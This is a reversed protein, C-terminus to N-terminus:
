HVSTQFFLWRWRCWGTSWDSQFNPDRVVKFKRLFSFTRRMHPHHDYEFLRHRCLIFPIHTTPQARTATFPHTFPHAFPQRKLMQYAAITCGTAGVHHLPLLREHRCGPFVFHHPSRANSLSLVCQLGSAQRAVKPGQYNTVWRVSRLCKWIDQEDGIWECLKHIM